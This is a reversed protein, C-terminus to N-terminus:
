FRYRKSAKCMEQLNADAHIGAGHAQLARKIHAYEMRLSTAFIGPDDSGVVVSTACFDSGYGLWRGIHHDDYTEHISIRVNSSPLTEIGISRFQLLELVASQVVLLVDASLVDSAQEVFIPQRARALVDAEVDIGHRRLFQSHADPDKVASDRFLKIEANRDPDVDYRGYTRVIPDLHRLKWARHLVDPTLAPTKWIQMALRRIEMEILVIKQPLLSKQRLLGWVFVLDDLRDEITQVVADGQAKWWKDPLLGAATGHGIRCGASLDLFHVAESIARLGSALHVFDEGVHYTFRQVGARRMRRFVQAFVEPGAHRENSAADVGRILESLGSTSKMLVVLARAAQDAERRVKADRCVPTPQTRQYFKELESGDTRKIFHAVLGLRLRRESSPFIDSGNEFVRVLRILEPLSIPTKKPDSLQGHRHKRPTGDPKEDLFELYGRLMQMLRRATGDPTAKPAFRGELFDVPAQVGREIQRFRDAFDKETTERLENLTIHQFQDFGVQSVQQVLLRCFQARLLAYWYFAVGYMERAEPQNLTGIIDILHLAEATTRSVQSEAIRNDVVNKYSIDASRADRPCDQGVKELLFAKLAIAQDVRVRLRRPSLNQDEQQLLREVGNGIAVHLGSERSVVKHSLAGVVTEPRRLADIWIKEAETTGNLHMHMEGLGESQCLQDLFPDDDVPLTSDCLWRQVRKQFSKLASLSQRDEYSTPRRAAMWAATILMPPVVLILDQWEALLRTHVRLSGDRGECLFTEGLLTLVPILCKSPDDLVKIRSTRVEIDLQEATLAIRNEIAEDTLKPNLKRYHLFRGSAHAAKLMDRTKHQGWLSQLQDATCGGSAEHELFRALHVNSLTAKAIDILGRLRAKQEPGDDIM